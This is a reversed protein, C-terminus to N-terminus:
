SLLGGLAPQEAQRSPMIFPGARRAARDRLELRVAVVLPALALAISGASLSTMAIAIRPVRPMSYM